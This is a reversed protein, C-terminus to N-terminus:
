PTPQMLWLINELPWRTEGRYGRKWRINLRIELHTLIRETTHDDIVELAKRDGGVGVAGVKELLNSVRVRVRVRVRV